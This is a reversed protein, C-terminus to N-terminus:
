EDLEEEFLFALLKDGIQKAREADFVGRPPETWCVSAAGLAQFVADRATLTGDEERYFDFDM